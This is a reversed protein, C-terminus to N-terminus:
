TLLAGSYISEQIFSPQQVSGKLSLLRTKPGPEISHIEYKKSPEGEVLKVKTLM